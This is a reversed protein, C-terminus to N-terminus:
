KVIISSRLIKRVFQITFIVSDPLQYSTFSIFNKKKNNVTENSIIKISEIELFVWTLILMIFSYLM